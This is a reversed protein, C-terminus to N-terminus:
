KKAKRNDVKVTQVDAKKLDADKQFAEMAKSYLWSM